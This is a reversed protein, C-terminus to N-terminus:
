LEEPAEEDNHENSSEEFPQAVFVHGCQPCELQKGIMSPPVESEYGCNPCKIKISDPLIEFGATNKDQMASAAPPPVPEFTRQVGKLKTIEHQLVDYYKRYTQLSIKNKDSLKKLRYMVETLANIKEAKKDPPMNDMRTWDSNGEIYNSCFDCYWKYQAGVKVFRLPYNDNPCLPPSYESELKKLMIDQQKLEYDIHRIKDELDQINRKTAEIDYKNAETEPMTALMEKYTNLKLFLDKKEEMLKDREEIIEKMKSKPGFYMQPPPMPAPRHSTSSVTDSVQKLYGIGAGVGVPILLYVIVMYLMDMHILALLTNALDTNEGFNETIINALELSGGIVILYPLGVFFGEIAGEWWTKAISTGILAALFGALVLGLFGFPIVFFVSFILLLVSAVCVLCISGIVHGVDGM